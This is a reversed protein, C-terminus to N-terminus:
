VYDINIAHLNKKNFNIVNAVNQILFAKDHTDNKKEEFNM